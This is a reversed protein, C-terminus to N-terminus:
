SRLKNRSAMKEEVSIKWCPVGNYALQANVHMLEAGLFRMEKLTYDGVAFITDCFRAARVLAHKYYGNQDGFVDDVFHGEAMASRMVNYFMTDHGQHGEVIRRMTACEHAHFITRFNGAEGEMVAALCTPMGMYEH